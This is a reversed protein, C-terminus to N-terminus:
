QLGTHGPSRSVTATQIWYRKRSWLICQSQITSFSSNSGLRPGANKDFYRAQTM